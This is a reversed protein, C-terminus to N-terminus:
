VMWINQCWRLESFVSTITIILVSKGKKGKKTTVLIVGNAGRAGYIASASADKLVTISEIDTPSLNNFETLGNYQINDIVVLPTSNGFTGIGRIVISSNDNGPLGSSQTLQVGSFKGYMLQASTTVPQNVADSFRM